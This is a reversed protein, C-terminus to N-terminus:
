KISTEARKRIARIKKQAEQPLTWPNEDRLIEEVKEKARDKFSKKGSAVWDEYNQRDVLNPYWDERFHRMTHDSGLFHGDPGVEDVVDLALTDENVQTGEMFSRIWGILEDCMVLLQLSGTIGSEMYGLDHILNAGSLADVLLTMGTEAGAQADLVKSDTCGALGFYPLGYFHAQAAGLGRMEPPAYPEIQTRLELPLEWAGWIFPTGERKLQSLVLGVLHGAGALALSGARTVPATAGRLGVPTYTTPLGKEAMYLLKQLSEENHRLDSTVNIYCAVFPNQCLAEPDGSVAEAMEICDVCGEFGPCVFIIPKRTHCLMAEMQYRDLVPNPVDWPLFMSMVFDINELRECVRMADVVDAIRANRREDTRHDLVNLCDSGPGFFSKKGELPMTRNGDRDCLVVRKPVAKLAWEALHSPIRVRNGDTVHAGAKKLIDIADKLYLRVGTRELIELSAFHIERLQDDTLQNFRPAGYQTFGSIQHRVIDEERSEGPCSM